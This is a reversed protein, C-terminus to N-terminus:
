PRTRCPTSTSDATCPASTSRRGPGDAPPASQRLPVAGADDVAARRRTSRTSAKRRCRVTRPSATPRPTCGSRARTVSSRITPPPNPWWWRAPRGLLESRPDPRVRGRLRDGRRRHHGAVCRGHAGSAAGACHRRDVFAGVGSKMDSSGRGYMKGADTEGAFPDKTWPAAGLPVIDIHGTFCLPKKTQAAASRRSWTPAGPASATTASGIAPRRSCRRRPPARVAGRRRAPQHHEPAATGADTPRSRRSPGHCNRETHSFYLPRSAQAVSAARDQRSSKASTPPLLEPHRALEDATGSAVVPRQSLVYGRHAIGADPKM